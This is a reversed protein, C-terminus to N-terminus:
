NFKKGGETLCINISSKVLLCEIAVAGSYINLSLTIRYIIM